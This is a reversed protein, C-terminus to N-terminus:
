SLFKPINLPNLLCEFMIGSFPTKISHKNKYARILNLVIKRIINLNEQTRQEAARCFDENFHVDLLWHMTEVSWELRSHYLLEGATLNRSSIFYHWENTKGSLTEFQTNIAGISKISEWDEKGFLWDIDDTVYAIRTEIRDRNKETKTKKDMAKQLSEDNVYDAIEAKLDAHNDKVSLLYDGGNEIIIKATEKQCNLADAVIMCGKIDLLEILDRVAPIENSKDNVAKQGLTIGLEALHGSVIHLPKAYNKMKGPSRVTKGDFSITGNNAHGGALSLAWGIFRENFSEPAIMGLLQTFWSYCPIQTIGCHNELFEKIREDVAWKQIQMMNKLGCFTGLIAIIITETLSYFYGDYYRATEIGDFYEKLSKTLEPYAGTIASMEGDNKRGADENKIDIGM